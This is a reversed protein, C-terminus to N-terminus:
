DTFNAATASDFVLMCTQSYRMDSPASLVANANSPGESFARYTKGISALYIDALINNGM